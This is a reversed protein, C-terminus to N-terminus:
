FLSPQQPQTPPPTEEVWCRDSLRCVLDLFGQRQPFAALPPRASVVIAASHRIHGICHLAQDLLRRSEAYSINEDYFTALLDFILVPRPQPLNATQDLLAAAQYCTFARASHINHLARVPDPTLRRLERVLPLPNARNGCDLLLLPGRLALRAALSLLQDAATQGGIVVYFQTTIPLTIADM